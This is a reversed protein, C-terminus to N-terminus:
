ATSEAAAERSGDEDADADSRDLVPALALVDADADADLAVTILTLPSCRSSYLQIVTCVGRSTM